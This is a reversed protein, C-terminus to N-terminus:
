SISIEYRDVLDRHRGYFIQLSSKLSPVVYFQKLLKQTLLQARDLIDSYQTCITNVQLL